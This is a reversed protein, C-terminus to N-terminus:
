PNNLDMPHGHVVKKVREIFPLMNPNTAQELKWKKCLYDYLAGDPIELSQCKKLVMISM